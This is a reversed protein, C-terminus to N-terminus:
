KAKLRKQLSLVQERLEAPADKPMGDVARQIFTRAEKQSGSGWGEHLLAAM